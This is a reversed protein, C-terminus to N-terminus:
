APRLSAEIARMLPLPAGLLHEMDPAAAWGITRRAEFGALRPRMVGEGCYCDPMVTLGLGAAVMDMVREDNTSRFAFHPRVGRETFFRSTESLAECHRRVIMTENALREPTISGEAALAHASSIALSYGETVVPQEAFRDAGRDVLTLALDIRGKSLHGALERETGFLLEFRHTRGPQAEAVASAVLGGPLSGIVGVRFPPLDSSLGMAQTAVNFEREIRRAHTLFRAGADTLEVRQNSRIFLPHGLERELKAIGVSLTPQSVNCAAAARSFNGQDVVALFYRLLYRDLM